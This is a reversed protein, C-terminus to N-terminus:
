FCGGHSKKSKHSKTKKSKHSGTKKSKHSGSKPKCGCGGGGIVTDLSTISADAFKAISDKM